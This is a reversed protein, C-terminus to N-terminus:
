FPRDFAVHIRALRWAGASRAARCDYVGTTRVEVGEPSAAFLVLYAGIQMSDPGCADVRHNTIVHRLRGEGAELSARIFDVVPRNGEVAPPAEAGAIELSFRVDHTLLAALEDFRHDDMARGYRALLDHGDAM